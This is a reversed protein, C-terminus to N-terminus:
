RLYGGTDKKDLTRLIWDAVRPEAWRLGHGNPGVFGLHGGSAAIHVELEPRHPLSAIPDVAVFPDNRATLILTPVTIRDMLPLAAARCYYDASDAFGGRPATHLDDFQRLTLGRPFHVAPLDPFYRQHLQIQQVLARAFYRNYYLNEPRSLLESCAELDIPPNVAAVGALGALPRAASEGALKLVINGGLSYGALFVAAGPFRRVVEEAAARVDASAAANYTRRALRIGAGAGPLDLRVVHCGQRVLLRALRVLHGSRHCGSLGHVLIVVPRGRRWVRPPSDYLFMRDGATLPIAYRTSSLGPELYNLLVGLVTQVHPGGLLPLPRFDMTM